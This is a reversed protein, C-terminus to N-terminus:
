YLTKPLIFFIKKEWNQNLNLANTALANMHQPSILAYHPAITFLLIFLWNLSPTTKVNPM